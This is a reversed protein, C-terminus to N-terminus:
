AFVIRNSVNTAFQVFPVELDGVLATFYPDDDTIGELARSKGAIHVLKMM